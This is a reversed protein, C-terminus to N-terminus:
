ELFGKLLFTAPDRVGVGTIVIKSESLLSVHRFDQIENVQINQFSLLFSFIFCFLFLFPLLFFFTFCVKPTKMQPSSSAVAKM